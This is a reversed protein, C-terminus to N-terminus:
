SGSYLCNIVSDFNDLEQAYVDYEKEQNYRSNNKIAFCKERRFGDLIINSTSFVELRSYFINSDNIKDM